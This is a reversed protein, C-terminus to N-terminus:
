SAVSLYPCSTDAEEPGWLTGYIHKKYSIRIVLFVFHRVRRTFEQEDMYPAMEILQNVDTLLASVLASVKVQIARLSNVGDNLANAM